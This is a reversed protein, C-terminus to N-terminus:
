AALFAAASFARVGGRDARAHRATSAAVPAKWFCSYGFVVMAVDGALVEWELRAHQDGEVFNIWGNRGGEISFRPDAATAM